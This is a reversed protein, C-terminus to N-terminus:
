ILPHMTQYLLKQCQDAHLKYNKSFGVTLDTVVEVYIAQSTTSKETSDQHVYLPRTFTVGTILLPISDRTQIEPLPATVYSYINEPCNSGQIIM